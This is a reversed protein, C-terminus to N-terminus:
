QEVQYNEFFEVAASYRYELDIWGIADDFAIDFQMRIYDHKYCDYNCERISEYTEERKADIYEEGVIVKSWYEYDDETCTYIDEDYDYVFSGDYFGNHNGILDEVYCFGNHVISLTKIEKTEKIRVDM